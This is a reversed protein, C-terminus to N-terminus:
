FYNYDISLDDSDLWLHMKLNGDELFYRWSETADKSATIRVSESGEEVHKRVIQGDKSFLLYLQGDPGRRLECEDSHLRDGALNSVCEEMKLANFSKSVPLDDGDCDLSQIKMVSTTELGDQFIWVGRGILSSDLKEAFVDFLAEARRLGLNTPRKEWIAWTGKASAILRGSQTTIEGELHAVNRGRRVIRGSSTLVDGIRAADIFSTVLQTTACWEDKKLTSVLAGGLSSDLMMTYLGGHAVGGKNTHFNDVTVHMTCKGKGWEGRSIGLTQSIGSLEPAQSLFDDAM